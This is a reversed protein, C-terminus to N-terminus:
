SMSVERGVLVGVAFTADSGDLGIARDVLRDFVGTFPGARLELAHAVLILNEAVCGAEAVLLRYSEEGYKQLARPLSITLALFVSAGRAIDRVDPLCFGLPDIEREHVTVLAHRECDYRFVGQLLGDVKIPVVYVDVGYLAGPSPYARLPVRQAGLVLEGTVGCAGGLLQAVQDLSIRSGDYQTPSRRKRLLTALSDIPFADRLASLNIVEGLEGSHERPAFTLDAIDEAPLRSRSQAGRMSWKHSQGARAGTAAVVGSWSVLNDLIQCASEREDEPVGVLLEDWTVGRCLRNMLYRLSTSHWEIDITRRIRAVLKQTVRDDVEDPLLDFTLAVRQGDM